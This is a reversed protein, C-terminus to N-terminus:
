VRRAISMSYVSVQFMFMSSVKLIDFVVLCYLIKLM